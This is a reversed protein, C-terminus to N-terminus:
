DGDLANFGAQVGLPTGIDEIVAVQIARVAQQLVEVKFRKAPNSVGALTPDELAVARARAQAFAAETQPVEGALTVALDELADLSLIVHRLSRESRRAEARKPRPRDFTGLPRGLRQDHLFELGTSLATFLARKAETESQYRDNQGANRLLDAHDAWGANLAAAKDALGAAMAQTLRCAYDEDSQAEFLVRELATFGQAAASVDFFAVRDDVIPDSVSTLRAIARATRDKPDPWFAMALTLGQDELPGFQIHSISIWDDYAAHFAPIVADPTCDAAASESLTQTSIALAAHGPLIHNELVANVDAFVPSAILAFALALRM